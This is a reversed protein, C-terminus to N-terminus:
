SCKLHQVFYRYELDHVLVRQIKKIDEVHECNQISKYQWIEYNEVIM